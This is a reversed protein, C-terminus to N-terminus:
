LQEILSTINSASCCCELVNIYLTCQLKKSFLSPALTRGWHLFHARKILFLGCYRLIALEKMKKEMLGSHNELLWSFSAKVGEVLHTHKRRSRTRNTCVLGIKDTCNKITTNARELQESAGRVRQQTREVDLLVRRGEAVDFNSPLNLHSIVLTSKLLCVFM